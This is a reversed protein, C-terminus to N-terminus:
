ERERPEEEDPIIGLLRFLALALLVILALGLYSLM